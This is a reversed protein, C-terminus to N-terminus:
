VRRGAGAPLSADAQAGGAGEGEDEDVEERMRDVAEEVADLLDMGGWEVRLRVLEYIEETEVDEVGLTQLAQAIREELVM